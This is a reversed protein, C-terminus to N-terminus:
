SDEQSNESLISWERYLECERPNGFGCYRKKSKYYKCGKHTCQRNNSAMYPCVDINDKKM